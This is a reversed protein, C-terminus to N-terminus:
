YNRNWWDPMADIEASKHWDVRGDCWLVNAGANHRTGIPFNASVATNLIFMGRDGDENCGDGIIITNSPRKVQSLKIPAYAYIAPDDGACRGFGTGTPSGHSNFGYSVNDYSFVFDRDAPCRFVDQNKIYDQNYVDFWCDEYPELATGRSPYIWEKNDDIYSAIALGIQKLNGGCNSRQATERAKSLAPLLMAALIAIIAIVVLLEILTFSIVERNKKTRRKM